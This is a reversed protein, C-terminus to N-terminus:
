HRTRYVCRPKLCADDVFQTCVDSGQTTFCTGTIPDVPGQNGAGCPDYVSPFEFYSCEYIMFPGSCRYYWLNELADIELCTGPLGEWCIVENCVTPMCMGAFVCMKGSEWDAGAVLGLEEDSLTRAARGGGATATTVAVVAGLALLWSRTRM